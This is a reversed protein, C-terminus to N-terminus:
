GKSRQLAPSFPPLCSMPRCGPLRLRAALREQVETLAADAEASAAQVDAAEAELRPADVSRSRAASRARTSAQGAEVRRTDAAQEASELDSRMNLLQSVTLVLLDTIVDGTGRTACASGGLLALAVLLAVTRSGRARWRAWGRAAWTISGM